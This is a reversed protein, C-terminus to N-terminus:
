KYYMRFAWLMWAHLKQQRVASYHIDLVFYFMKLSLSKTVWMCTYIKCPCLKRTLHNGNSSWCNGHCNWHCFILGIIFMGGLGWTVSYETLFMQIQELPMFISPIWIFNWFLGYGRWETGFLTWISFWTKRNKFFTFFISTYFSDLM